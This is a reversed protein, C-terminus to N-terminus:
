ARVLHRILAIALESVEDSDITDCITPFKTPPKSCDWVARCIAGDSLTGTAVSEAVQTAQRVAAIAANAIGWLVTAYEDLKEATERNNSGVPERLYNAARNMMTAMDRLPPLESASAEKTDKNTM